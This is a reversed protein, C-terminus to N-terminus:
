YQNKPEKNLYKSSYYDRKHCFYCGVQSLDGGSQKKVKKITTANSTIVPINSSQSNCEKMQVFISKSLDVWLKILTAETEVM